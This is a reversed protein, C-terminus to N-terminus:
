NEQVVYKVDVSRCSDKYPAATRVKLQEKSDEDIPRTSLMQTTAALYPCFKRNLLHHSTATSRPKHCYIMAQPLLGHSTATSRPKHCYVMAQPLPVMAQPLLDHSTATACDSEAKRKFEHILSALQCMDTMVPQRIDRQKQSSLNLWQSKAMM